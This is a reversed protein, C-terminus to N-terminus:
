KIFFTTIAGALNLVLAIIALICSIGMKGGLKNNEVVVSIAISVGIIGCILTAIALGKALLFIKKKLDENICLISLISAVSLPSLICCITIFARMSMTKDDVKSPLNRCINTSGELRCIKWLGYTYKFSEATSGTLWIPLPNATIYLVATVALLGTATYLLLRNQVTM